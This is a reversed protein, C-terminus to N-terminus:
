IHETLNLSHITTRAVRRLRDSTYNPKMKDYVRDEIM